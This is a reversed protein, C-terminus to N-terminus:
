LLSVQDGEVAALRGKECSKGVWEGNSRDIALLGLGGRHGLSGQARVPVLAKIQIGVWAELSVCQLCKSVSQHRVLRTFSSLINATWTKSWFFNLFFSWPKRPTILTRMPSTISSAGSASPVTLGSGRNLLETDHSVLQAISNSCVVHEGPVELLRGIVEDNVAFQDHIERGVKGSWRSTLRTSWAVARVWLGHGTIASM